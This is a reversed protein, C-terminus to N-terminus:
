SSRSNEEVKPYLPEEDPYFPYVDAVNFTPSINFSKPLDIVYANDNIRKIVKFPGYKKPQLKSFQEALTQATTSKKMAKPPVHLDLVHNPPKLYVISFPTKGFMM